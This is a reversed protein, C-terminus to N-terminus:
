SSGGSAPSVQEGSCRSPTSRRTPIPEGAADDLARRLSSAHRSHPADNLATRLEDVSCVRQQVVALILSAATRATPQTSAAAVASRRSVVCRLGSRLRVDADTFSRLRHVRIREWSSARRDHPIAVDIVDAEWGKLGLVELGALGFLASASGAHLQAVWWGQERTLPGTVLAVVRPGVSQWRQAALQSRVHHRTIGLSALQTRGVVGLQRDALEYLGRVHALPRTRGSM